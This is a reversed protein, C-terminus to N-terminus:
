MPCSWNLRISHGAALRRGMACCVEIELEVILSEREIDIAWQAPTPVPVNTEGTSKDSPVWLRVLRGPKVILKLKRLPLLKEFALM